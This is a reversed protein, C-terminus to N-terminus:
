TEIDTMRYGVGAETFIYRPEAPNSEIKRRIHAMNVRLIQNGGKMGPGWIERMLRDYTVVKGAYAGLFAVIRFEVQTLGADKGSVYVRRKDYDITLEGCKLAGEPAAGSLSGAHRIAARIRATLESPGFPKTIYDDAGLDLAEVKDREQSRASVVIIPMQSWSRVFEIVRGGDMDPLGLDLIVLDPCHSTILALAQSGNEASIVDYGNVRLITGIFSRISQEDEAVLIRERHEM